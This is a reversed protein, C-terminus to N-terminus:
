RRAKERNSLKRIASKLELVPLPAKKGLRQLDDEWCVILDSGEVPHDFNSSKYEFEIRVQRWKEPNTSVRQKATCDPYAQQVKEVIFGLEHSVMGFLYVVGQENVPGHGLGRFSPDLLEGFEQPRRDKLLERDVALKLKSTSMGQAKDFWVPDVTKDPGALRALEACKTAGLTNIQADTRTPLFEAIKVYAYVWARGLKLTKRGWEAFNRFGQKRWYRGRWTEHILRVLRSPSQQSKVQEIEALCEIARDM